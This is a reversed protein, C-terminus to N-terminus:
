LLTICLMCAAKDAGSARVRPLAQQLSKQLPVPAALLLATAAPNLAM